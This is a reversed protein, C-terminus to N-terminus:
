GHAESSVTFEVGEKLLDICMEVPMPPMVAGPNQKLFEVLAKYGLPGVGTIAARALMIGDESM